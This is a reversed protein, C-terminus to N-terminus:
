GVSSLLNLASDKSIQWGSPSPGAVFTVPQTASGGTAATATVNATAVPGNADIDAVVFSLPFQGKAVAKNYASDAAIGEIRGIGGQIYASKAGRFSGGSALGNLTQLLPGQLDPAPDLPMPAGFVVPTVAPAATTATTTVGASVVGAIAAAGALTAVGKALSKLTM